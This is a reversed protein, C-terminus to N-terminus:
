ASPIAAALIGPMDALLPISGPVTAAASFGMIGIMALRGNNLEANQQADFQKQTKASTTDIVKGGWVDTWRNDGKFELQNGPFPGGATYHKKGFDSFESHFEALGIAVLMQVKGDYPVQAWADLPNHSLSSFPTDTALNGPFSMGMGNVIWGATALMAVRSHKLEAARYWLMLGDSTRDTFGVPDWCKGEKGGLPATAGVGKLCAPSTGGFASVSTATALIAILRVM